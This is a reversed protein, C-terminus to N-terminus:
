LNFILKVLWTLVQDTLFFFFAAVLSMIIIMITASVTEQKTAWQIKNAEARVEKSFKSINTLKM